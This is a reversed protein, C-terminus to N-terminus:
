KIFRNWRNITARLSPPLKKLDPDVYDVIAEPSELTTTPFDAVITSEYRLGNLNPFQRQQLFQRFATVQQPTLTRITVPAAKITPSTILKTIKGDTTLTFITTPANTGAFGGAVRSRFIVEAELSSDRDGRFSVAISHSQVPSVSIASVMVM